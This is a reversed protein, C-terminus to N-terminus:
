ASQKMMIEDVRELLYQQGKATVRTKLYAVEENTTQNTYTAEKVEFVGMDIYRQYPKNDRMLYGSGRLLAYLRNQGITYRTKDSIVKAFDQISLTSACSGIRKAFKVMPKQSEILKLAKEKAEKEAKVQNALQIITDPNLLVEEIKEPTLYAGHKRISPLVESTVWKKFQKAEPKKSGLIANYLGSENIIKIHRVQGSSNDTYTSVEDDDLRRTMAQTDSYGLAKAIDMAVFYPEGDILGGRIEFGANKFVELKM